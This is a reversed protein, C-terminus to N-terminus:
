WPPPWPAARGPPPLPLTPAGGAVQRTEALKLEIPRPLVSRGVDTVPKFM